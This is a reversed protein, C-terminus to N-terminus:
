RKFDNNKYSMNFRFFSMVLPAYSLL